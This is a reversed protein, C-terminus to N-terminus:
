NVAIATVSIEVETPQMTTDSSDVVNVSFDGASIPKDSLFDCKTLDTPLTIGDPDILACSLGQDGKNNCAMMAAGSLNTCAVKDRQGEWVGDSTTSVDFQVAGIDGSGTAIGITVAYTVTAGGSVEAAGETKGSEAQDQTSNGECGMVFFLLGAAAVTLLSSRNRGPSQYRIISLQSM